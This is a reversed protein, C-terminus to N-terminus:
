ATSRSVSTSATAPVPVSSMEVTFIVRPVTIVVQRWCRSRTYLTFFRPWRVFVTMM